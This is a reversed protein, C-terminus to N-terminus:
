VFVDSPACRTRASPSEMLVHRPSTMVSGPNGDYWWWQWGMAPIAMSIMMVMSNGDYWWWQRFQWWQWWWQRSQWRHCHHCDDFGNSQWFLQFISHYRPFFGANTNSCTQYNDRLPVYLFWSRSQIVFIAERDAESSRYTFISNTNVKIIDAM